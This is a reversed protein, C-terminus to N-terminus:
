PVTLCRQTGNVISHESLNILAQLSRSWALEDKQHQFGLSCQFLEAEAGLAKLSEGAQRPFFELSYYQQLEPSNAVADCSMTLKTEGSPSGTLLALTDALYEGVTTPGESLCTQEAPLPAEPLSLTAELMVQGPKTGSPSEAGGGQVSFSLGALTSIMVFVSAKQMGTM